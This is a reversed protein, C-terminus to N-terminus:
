LKFETEEIREIDIVVEDAFATDVNKIRYYRDRPDVVFVKADKHAVLSKLRDILQKLNLEEPM